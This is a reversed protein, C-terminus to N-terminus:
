WKDIAMILMKPDGTTKCITLAEVLETSVENKSAELGNDILLLRDKTVKSYM